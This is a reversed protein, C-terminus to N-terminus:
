FLSKFYYKKDRPRSDIMKILELYFDHTEQEDASLGIVTGHHGRKVPMVNWMGQVINEADYDQWEDGAPYKASVVNVLGDNELWTEDIPFDTVTNHSYKGMLAATPMLIALTSSMDPVHNGTFSSVNTTSYAYSFYYVGDVLKIQKNIEAAGDPSLDYAANDAGQSFVTNIVTNVDATASDVGFHELRFDYFDGVANNQTLSGGLKVIDMALDVVKYQDIVYFLTSGNHPACLATVSNIYDGKGGKFLESVNEGSAEVEAESGYELLSALMRVTAGGFSHGVLNAKILQGGETKTGWGPALQTTYERGYREHNHAKSHAEGYDVTTGALQAYLECARDWTSSFPGVSAEYATHGEGALYDVLSGTTSGWYPSVENIQAEAGWGGLGHVLIYPYEVPDETIADFAKKYLGTPIPIIVAILLCVAVVFAVVKKTNNKKDSKIKEPEQWPISTAQIVPETVPDNVEKDTVFEETDRLLFDTSVGFLEALALVKDSDPLAKGSEWKSVSQRSVDLKEALEDQSWGLDRRLISIKESITM